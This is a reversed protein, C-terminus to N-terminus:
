PAILNAPAYPIGNGATSVGRIKVNDTDSQSTTGTYRVGYYQRAISGQSYLPGVRGGRVLLSSVGTDVHIGAGTTSGAPYATGNAGVLPNRLEIGSGGAVHLGHLGAGRIRLNTLEAPGTFGSDIIMGSGNPQGIWSNIMTLNGGTDVRVGENLPNDVGTRLTVVNTPGPTGTLRMGRSSGILRSSRVLVGDVNPGIVLWEMVTNSSSSGSLRVFEAGTTSGGSVGRVRVGYDGTQGRLAVDTLLPTTCNVLEIGRYTNAIRVDDVFADTCSQLRVAYQLHSSTGTISLCRLGSGTCNGVVFGEIDGAIKLITGGASSIGHGEGLLTVNSTTIHVTENINYTNAAPLLITYPSTGPAADIVDQIESSDIKGNTNSDVPTPYATQAVALPALTVATFLLGCALSTHKM